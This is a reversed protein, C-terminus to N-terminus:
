SGIVKQRRLFELLGMLPLGLISFFDGEISSFLQVGEGELQYCGVSSLVGEGARALYGDLWDASFDRMTLRTSDLERYKVDNGRTVVLASHLQHAKGRMAWLRERAEGMSTAKDFLRGEFELTQDCGVVLEDREWAVALAKAEALAAAIQAPSRDHRLLEEKLADENVGAGVAEFPVGAGALVQARAASKSALVIM